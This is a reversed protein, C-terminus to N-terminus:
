STMCSQYTPVMYKINIFADKGGHHEFLELTEQILDGINERKRQSYEIGDISNINVNKFINFIPLIQRYYPVLAEGVKDGSTVLHQLVKLTTTMVQLNWGGILQPIVPLIKPGGHELMDHVGQRAFFEYPHITECLGDFFLPLYHHYVLKEIEMRCVIRNGGPKHQLAMPFEGREYFLRFTTPKSPREQFAGADPPGEVMTNKITAKLTFGQAKLEKKNRSM